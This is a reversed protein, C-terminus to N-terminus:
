NRKRQLAYKGALKLLDKERDRLYIAGVKADLYSALFVIVNQSLKELGQDGRMKTSLKAEGTKFWDQAEAEEKMTQLNNKMREIAISLMFGSGDM